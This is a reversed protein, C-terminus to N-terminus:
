LLANITFTMLIQAFVNDTIIPKIDFATINRCVRPRNMRAHGRVSKKSLVCTHHSSAGLANRVWQCSVIRVKGFPESKGRILVGQRRFEDCLFGRRDSIFRAEERHVFLGSM